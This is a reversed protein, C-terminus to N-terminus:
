APDRGVHALRGLAGGLREAAEVADDNRAAEADAADLALEARQLERALLADRREAQAQAQLAHHDLVCAVDGADVVGRRALEVGVGLEGDDRRHGLLDVIM